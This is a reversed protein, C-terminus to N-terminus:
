WAEAAPAPGAAVMVTEGLRELVEDRCQQALHQCAACKHNMAMAGIVLVLAAGTAPALHERRLRAFAAQPDESAGAKHALPVLAKAEKYTEGQSLIKMSTEGM